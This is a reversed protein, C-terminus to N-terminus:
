NADHETGHAGEKKKKLLTMFIYANSANVILIVDLLKVIPRMIFENFSNIERCINQEIRDSEMVEHIYYCQRERLDDINKRKGSMLDEKGKRKWM